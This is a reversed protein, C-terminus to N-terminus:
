EVIMKGSIITAPTIIQYLYIGAKGYQLRATELIYLEQNPNLKDTFVEVGAANLIRIRAGEVRSLSNLKFVVYANAPQPYVAIGTEHNETINLGTAPKYTATITTHAAPMTLTTSAANINAVGAVDGTWKDFVNGSPADDAVIPISVGEEYSGDGSGSNVTLTYEVAGIKEITITNFNFVGNAVWRLSQEGAELYVNDIQKYDWEWWANTATSTNFLEVEGVFTENVYYQLKGRSHTLLTEPVEGFLLASAYQAKITYYGSTAVNITYSCWEGAVMNTIALTDNIGNPNAKVQGIDVLVDPRFHLTGKRVSDSELYSFGQGGNDFEEVNITGPVPIPTGSFPTLDPSVVFDVIDPISSLGDNDWAIAKLEFFGYKDTVYSFTYPSTLDAGLRVTDDVFVVVSDISGADSASVTITITAGLDFDANDDPQTISVVPAANVRFGAVAEQSADGRNDYARAKITYLGETANTITHIYPATYDTKVLVDNVYIRVSDVTGDIDTANVEIDVNGVPLVSGDAPSTIEVEPPAPTVVTIYILDSTDKLGKNDFAVARLNYAGEAQKGWNFQYPESKLTAIKVTGNLIEVSDVQVDDTADATIYIDDETTYKTMDSPSNISVQPVHNMYVVLNPRTIVNGGEKSTFDFQKNTTVGQLFLSLVKDGAFENIVAPSINIKYQQLASIRVQALVDGFETPRTSYNLATETWSDNNVAVIKLDSGPQRTCNLLLKASDIVGEFESMDFKLYSYYGDTTSEKIIVSTATGFNKIIDATKNKVHADAEVPLVDGPSVFVDFMYKASDVGGNATGGEDRLTITITVIGEGAANPTLDITATTDGADTSFDTVTLLSSNSSTIKSVIVNQNQLDKDTIGNLVVTQMGAGTKFVMPMVAYMTPADNIYDVTVVCEAIFGGDVATATITATGPGEVATVIGNASVEAISPDSSKWVVGNYTVNAPTFSPILKTEENEKLTVASTNLAISQVNVIETKDGTWVTLTPTLAANSNESGAYDLYTSKDSFVRVSLYGDELMQNKVYESVDIQIKDGVAVNAPMTIVAMTDGILTPANNWTVSGEEWNDDGVFVFYHKDSSTSVTQEIYLNIKASDIATVNPIAFKLMAESNWAPGTTRVRIEYGNNTKNPDHSTIAADDIVNTTLQTGVPHDDAIRIHVTDPRQAGENDYAIAYIDCGRNSTAPVNTWEFTYPALSDVSLLHWDQYFEVKTVEHDDTANATITINDGKEFASKDLPATIAVDPRENPVFSGSATGALFGYIAIAPSFNQNITFEGTSPAHPNNCWTEMLPWNSHGPYVEVLMYDNDFSQWYNYRDGHRRPGYPVVGPFVGRNLPDWQSDRHLIGKDPRKDGMGTVWTMNEPNNGLFFDATTQIANLFTIDGSLSYAVMSEMVTPTTSAGNLTPMWMNWGGRTNRVSSPGVNRMNAIYLSLDIMTQRKSANINAHNATAYAWIAHEIGKANSEDTAGTIPSDALFRSQYKEEGTYKYLWAAALIRKKVLLGGELLEDGARTNDEAWEYARIAYDILTAVSDDVTVNGTKQAAINLCYALQAACAAFHYSAAPDEACAYWQKPDEYSPTGTPPLGEYETRAIVGGSPSVDMTRKMFYVLWSAEDILDPIGNGSEPINLEGDAFNDPALEYTLLLDNVVFAHRIYADWDGADHYWGSINIPINTSEAIMKKREEESEFARYTSYYIDIDEYHHDRPRSWETYQPELDIGQRNHYLARTTHYYLERYVDNGIEFAYSCGMDDVVLKYEGPTTFSSFNCEYVDARTFNSPEGASQYTEVVDKGGRFAIQSTFVVQGTNVDVLHFDKGVYESLDAGGKDGMWHYLYGYKVQSNPIYGTQNTHVTNSRCNVADFRLSIKDTNSALSGVNVTYTKGPKMAHPLELYIYHDLALKYDPYSNSVDDPKSKRGISLPQLASAYNGDDSSTISFSSVLGALTTNLAVIDIVEADADEQYGSQRVFGDDFKLMVIKNTVPQIEILDSAKLVGSFGLLVTFFALIHRKRRM